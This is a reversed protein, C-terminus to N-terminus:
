IQGGCCRPWTGPCPLQGAPHIKRSGGREWSLGQLVQCALGLSKRSVLPTDWSEDELKWKARTREWTDQIGGREGAVPCSQRSWLKAAQHAEKQTVNDRFATRQNRKRAEGQLRTVCKGDQCEPQARPPPTGDLPACALCQDPLQVTM